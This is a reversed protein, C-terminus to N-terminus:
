KGQFSQLFGGLAAQATPLPPEARTGCAQHECLDWCPFMLRGPSRVPLVTDWFELLWKVPTNQCPEWSSTQHVDCLILISIKMESMTLHPNNPKARAQSQLQLLVARTATEWGKRWGPGSTNSSTLVVLM